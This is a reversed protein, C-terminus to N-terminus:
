EEEDWPREVGKGRGRRSVCVSCRALILIKETVEGAIRVKGRMVIVYPM